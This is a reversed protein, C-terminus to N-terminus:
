KNNNNNNNNKLINLKSFSINGVADWTTNLHKRIEQTVVIRKNRKRNKLVSIRVKKEKMGM